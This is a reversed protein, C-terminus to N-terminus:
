HIKEPTFILSITNEADLSYVKNKNIFYLKENFEKLFSCKGSLVVNGTDIQQWSTFDSLNVGSTKVYYIGNESGM